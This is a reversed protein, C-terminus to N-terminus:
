RLQQRKQRFPLDETSVARGNKQKEQDSRERDISSDM